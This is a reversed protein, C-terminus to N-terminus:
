HEDLIYHLDLKQNRVETTFDPNSRKIDNKCTLKMGEYYPSLHKQNGKHKLLYKSAEISMLYTIYILKKIESKQQIILIPDKYIMKLLHSQDKLIIEVRQLTHGISQRCLKFLTQLSQMM